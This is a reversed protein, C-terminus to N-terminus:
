QEIVAHLFLNKPFNRQPDFYTFDIVQICRTRSFILSRIGVLLGRFGIGFTKNYDVISRRNFVDEEEEEEEEKEEEEEEQTYKHMCM